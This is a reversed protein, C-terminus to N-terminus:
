LVREMRTLRAAAVLGFYRSDYGDPHGSGVYVLGAPIPRRGWVFHSLRQGHAGVPKSIGIVRGNCTFVADTRDHGVASPRDTEALMDGPLCLAHKTVHVPRPGALPTSLWFSVFDGRAIAGPAPRVAWAEISPSVVWTLQPIAWYTACAVPMVLACAKWLRDPRPQEGLGASGLTVAARLPLSCAEAYGLRALSFALRLM